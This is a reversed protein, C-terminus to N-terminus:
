LRRKLGLVKVTEKEPGVTKVTENELGEQVKVSKKEIM